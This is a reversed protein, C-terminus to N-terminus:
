NNKNSNAAICEIEVMAGLALGDAGITSRAPKDGPFAEAYATNMAAYHEMDDLFITCKIIDSLDAGVAKLTTEINLMTQRTQDGIDDSVLKNTEPNRGLEGSLYIMDGVIVASSFPAWDPLTSSRYFEPADASVSTAMLVAAGGAAMAIVKKM